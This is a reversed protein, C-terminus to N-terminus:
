SFIVFTGHAFAIGIFDWLEPSLGLLLRLDKKGGLGQCRESLFYTSSQWGGFM